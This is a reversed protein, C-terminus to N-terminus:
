ELPDSKVLGLVISSGRKLNVSKYDQGEPRKTAANFEKLIQDKNRGENMEMQDQDNPKRHASTSSGQHKALLTIIEPASAVKAEKTGYDHYALAEKTSHSATLDEMESDDIDYDGYAHTEKVNQTALIAEMESGHGGYSNTDVSQGGMKAELGSEDIDYDGFVHTEETDQKEMRGSEKVGGGHGQARSGKKQSPNKGHKKPSKKKSGEKLLRLNTDKPSVELGSEGVDHDNYSNTGVTEGRMKAELGSEDIDYDGFIHTEEKDQEEMRGNGKVGGGHGQARSGKKHSPGKGQNKPKAWKSKGKLLRLRTDKPTAKLDSDSTGHDGYSNTDVSQGGMKAELGSMDIDYDGFVHTEEVDQEEMRGNAKVGDPHGHVACSGKRQSRSKGHKVPKTMKSKGGKGGGKGRFLMINTDKKLNDLPDPFMTTEGETNIVELEAKNRGGSSWNEPNTPDNDLMDMYVHVDNYAADILSKVSHYGWALEGKSPDWRKYQDLAHQKYSLYRPLARIYQASRRTPPNYYTYTRYFRFDWLQNSVPYGRPFENLLDTAVDWCARHTPNRGVSDRDYEGSICKHSAGPYKQEYGVILDRLKRKFAAYDKLPEIDSWGTEYIDQAQVGLARLSQRFEHTRGTVVDSLTLNFRHPPHRLPCPVAGAVIDRLMANIGDSYLHVIVRRGSEIHERIALAMALADDDQHPVYFIAPTTKQGGKIIGQTRFAQKKAKPKAEAHGAKATKITMKAKASQQEQRSVDKSARSRGASKIKNAKKALARRLRSEQQEWERRLRQNVRHGSKGSVKSALHVFDWHQRDMKLESAGYSKAFNQTKQKDSAHQHHSRSKYLQLTNDNGGEQQQQQQQQQQLLRAMDMDQEDVSQILQRNYSDNNDNTNLKLPLTLVNQRSIPPQDAIPLAETQACLSGAIGNLGPGLVLFLAIASLLGLQFPKRRNSLTSM